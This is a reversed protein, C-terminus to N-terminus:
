AIFGCVSSGGCGPPVGHNWAAVQGWFGSRPMEVSHQQTVSLRVGPVDSPGSCLKPRFLWQVEKQARAASQASDVRLSDDSSPLTSRRPARQEAISQSKFM